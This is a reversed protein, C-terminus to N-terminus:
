FFSLIILMILGLFLMGYAFILLIAANKLADGTLTPQPAMRFSKGTFFESVYAFIIFAVAILFVGYKLYPFQYGAGM